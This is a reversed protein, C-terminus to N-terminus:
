YVPERDDRSASLPVDKLKAKDMAERVRKIHDKSSGPATVVEDILRSLDDVPLQEFEPSCGDVYNPNSILRFENDLKFHNDKKLFADLPGGHPIKEGNAQDYYEVISINLNDHEPYLDDCIKKLTRVSSKIAVGGSDKVYGKWMLDLDHDSMCWCHIFTSKRACKRSQREQDIVPSAEWRILDGEMVQIQQRSYTGEFKDQLKDSRCLYLSKKDLLYKFKWFDMYHWVITDLNEPLKCSPDPERKLKVYEGM